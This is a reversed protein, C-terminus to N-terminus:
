VGGTRVRRDVVLDLDHRQRLNGLGLCRRSCRGSCFLLRRLLLSLKAAFQPNRSVHQGIAAIDNSSQFGLSAFTDYADWSRDTMDSAFRANEIRSTDDNRPGSLKFLAARADRRPRAAPQQRDACDTAQIKGLASSVYM